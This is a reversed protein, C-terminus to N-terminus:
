SREHLTMAADPMLYAAAAHLLGPNDKFHGLGVNCHHCLAGRIEGTLHNHDKHWGTGKPDDTKCIACVGGQKELLALTPLKRKDNRYKQDRVIGDDIIPRGRPIGKRNM